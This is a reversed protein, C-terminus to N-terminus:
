KEVIFFNPPVTNIKKIFWIGDDEQFTKFQLEAHQETNIKRSSTIYFTVIKTLLASGQVETVQINNKLYTFYYPSLPALRPYAFAQCEVGCLIRPFKYM